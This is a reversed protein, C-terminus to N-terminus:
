CAREVQVQPVGDEVRLRIAIPACCVSCDEVFDQDEASLDLTITISEWCYPCNLTYTQLLDHM